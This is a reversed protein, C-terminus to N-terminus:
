VVVASQTALLPPNHNKRRTLGSLRADKRIYGMAAYLEGNEGEDPDGKVANVILLGYNNSHLDVSDRWAKAAVLESELQAMRQRADLSPQVKTKFGSLTMGAFLKTPRLTEWAHLVEQLRDEAAKPNYAM